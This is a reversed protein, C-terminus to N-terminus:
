SARSARADHYLQALGAASREWTFARARVRGAAVLRCREAPHGLVDALAAALAREDGVPVLRAAGGTVEAVAAVATAVVPVGCAMAELPPLGFGEYVSPYAFVAAGCLLRARAVGAVWGMRLIRDRHAAGAIAEALAADGWGTPGAIVLTVERDTGAVQDFARVLLPFNKRPEITGLGLIYPPRLSPDVHAGPVPPEAQDVGHHVTRVREAPVGLLDVVEAAVAHTPTHVFAGRAVARRVIDPYALASPACLEPFRIPTLDHVTVV